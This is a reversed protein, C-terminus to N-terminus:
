LAWRTVHAPTHPRPRSRTRILLAHLVHTLAACSFSAYGHVHTHAHTHTHEGQCSCGQCWMNVCGGLRAGSWGGGCAVRWAHRSGFGLGIGAGKLRRVGPKTNDADQRFCGRGEEVLGEDGAGQLKTQNLKPQYKCGVGQSRTCVCARACAGQARPLARQVGGGPRRLARVHGAGRQPGCVAAARGQLGCQAAHLAAPPPPSLPLPTLTPPYPIAPPSLTRPPCLLKGKAAGARFGSVAGWGPQNRAFGRM